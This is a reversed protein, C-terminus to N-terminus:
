DAAGSTRGALRDWLARLRHDYTHHELLHTRTREIQRQRAATESRLQRLAERLQGADAFTRLHRGPELVTGLGSAPSVGGSAHLLLPWGLAGAHVLEASLPDRRGAFVAALPRVAAGADPLEFLSEAACSWNAEECSSWGQGVVVLESAADRLAQQIREVVVAPILVREVLRQMRRRLSPEGLRVDSAREALRLLAEPSAIDRTEWCQEATTRLRSWLKRHTPQVVGCAAASADPRDAVLVIKDTCDPANCSADAPDCAWFFEMIREPPCGAAGLASVVAPSTGLRLASGDDLKDPVDYASLYCECSSGDWAFPLRDHAHNISFLLDPAFASLRQLHITTDAAWPGDLACVCSEWGLRAAARALNEATRHTARQPSLALIAPRPARSADTPKAAVSACLAERAARRERGIEGHVRECLERVSQIREPSVSAPCVIEAPPLLGPRTKLLGRLFALEDDPDVLACRGSRIEDSLDILRLVAAIHSLDPELVFVANHRAMRELLLTLEAGAAIAPLAVNAEAPQFECLCSSARTAPAATGGLWCAPEGPAETRFTLSGDLAVVPRWHAPVRTDEIRRALDAHEAALAGLNARWIQSDPEAGPADDLSELKLADASETM